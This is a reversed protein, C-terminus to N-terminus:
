SLGTITGGNDIDIGEAAPVSPLGPMRLMNGTIPVVFGAGSAVEIERVTLTFDRPRGLWKPDDSLSNQTKAVCIPTQDLGLRTIKKLNQKAKPLYEVASAGYIKTAIAEIKDRVSSKWDYVPNCKGTFNDALEAVKDALAEMGEGGREWGECVASEIGMVECFELVRELEDSSDTAFSNVAVVVPVHFTETNEIHKELNELGQELTWFPYKIIIGM